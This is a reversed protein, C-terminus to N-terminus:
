VVKLYSAFTLTSGNMSLAVTYPLSAYAGQTQVRGNWVGDGAFPDPAPTCSKQDVMQGSFASIAVQNGPDVSVVSWTLLQGDQCVTNLPSQGEQWSGLYKNSDVVYVYGQLTGAALAGIVDVAILIDIRNM